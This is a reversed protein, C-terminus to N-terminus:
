RGNVEVSQTYTTAQTFQGPYRNAFRLEEVFYNETGANAVTVEARVFTFGNNDDLASPTIQITRVGNDTASTFATITAGTIDKAGTGSADQAQTLKVTVTETIAGVGLKYVVRNAGGGNAFPQVWATNLSGQDAPPIALENYINEAYSHFSSM